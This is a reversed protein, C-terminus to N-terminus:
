PPPRPALLSKNVADLLAERTFPKQLFGATARGAFQIALENESYGSCLLVPVQLGQQRIARLTERGDLNPMTLDLIVLVIQQHHSGLVELAHIGDTALEVHFGDKKLIREAVQRVQAEDDVFLV